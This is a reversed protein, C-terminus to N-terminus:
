GNKRDKEKIIIDYNIAPLISGDDDIQEPIHVSLFPEESMFNSYKAVYFLSALDTELIKGEAIQLILTVNHGNLIPLSAM